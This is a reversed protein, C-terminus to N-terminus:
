TLKTIHLFTKAADFNINKSVGFDQYVRIDFFDNASFSVPTSIHLTIAKTSATHFYNVKYSAGNKYIYISPRKDTISNTFMISASIIASGAKAATWHYNTTPDFENQIDIQESNFQIKTLTAHDITQTSASRFVQIRSQKELTLIGLNDLDFAQAGATHMRVHDEDTSEETDVKTDTDADQIKSSGADLRAKVTAFDGKPLTGLEAQLAIMEEKLSNAVWAEVDSIDDTQNPYNEANLIATPYVPWDTYHAM